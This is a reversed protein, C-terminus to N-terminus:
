DFRHSSLLFETTANLILFNTSSDLKNSGKLCLDALDHLNWLNVPTPHNANLHCSLAELYTVRENTFKVCEFLYHISTEIHTLCCQCFPNEGINYAFLHAKLPSLGLRIQTLLKTGKGVITNYFLVRDDIIFKENLYKKLKNLSDVRVLDVSLGELRCHSLSFHHGISQKRGNQNTYSGRKQGEPKGLKLTGSWTWWILM